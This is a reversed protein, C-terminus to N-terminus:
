RVLPEASRRTEKRNARNQRAGDTRLARRHGSPLTVASARSSGILPMIRQASDVEMPLRLCCAIPQCRIVARAHREFPNQPGESSSFRRVTGTAARCSERNLPVGRTVLSLTERISFISGCNGMRKCFSMERPVAAEKTWTRQSCPTGVREPISLTQAEAPGSCRLPDREGGTLSVCHCPTLRARDSSGLRLRRSLADRADTPGCASERCDIMEFKLAVPEACFHGSPAPSKEAM